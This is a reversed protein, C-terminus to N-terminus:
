EGKPKSIRVVTLKASYKEEAGEPIFEVEKSEGEKMGELSEYFEKPFQEKNQGYDRVNTRQEPGFEGTKPAKVSYKVRLFDGSSVPEESHILGLAAEELEFQADSIEKESFVGKKILLSKLAAFQGLIEGVAALQQQALKQQAVAVEQQIFPKLAERNAAGVKDAFANSGSRTQGSLNRKNGM